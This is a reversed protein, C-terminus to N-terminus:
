RQKENRKIFLGDNTLIWDCMNKKMCVDASLQSYEARQYKLLESKTLNTYKLYPEYFNARMEKEFKAAKDIETPKNVSYTSRGYHILNYAQEYMIRFGPTGQIAILSACSSADGMVFTRIIAGKTRAINLLAMISKAVPLSGGTSDINIDIVPPTNKPLNYPNVITDSNISAYTHGWPLDNVMNSINGILEACSETDIHDLIFITRGAIYNASKSDNIIKAADSM